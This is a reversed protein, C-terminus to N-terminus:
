PANGTIGDVILIPLKMDLRISNATIVMRTASTPKGNMYYQATGGNVLSRAVIGYGQNRLFDIVEEIPTKGGIGGRPVLRIAASEPGTAGSGSLYGQRPLRIAGGAPPTKLLVPEQKAAM